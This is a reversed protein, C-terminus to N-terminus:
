RARARRRGTRVCNACAQPAATVSGAMSTVFTRKSYRRDREFMPVILSYAMAAIFRWVFYSDRQASSPMVNSTWFPSTNPMIPGLPAPLDVSIFIMARTRGGVLPLTITRPLTAGMISSPAPNLESNVPKSFMTM